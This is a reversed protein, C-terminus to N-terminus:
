KELWKIALDKDTFIEVQYSSNKLVTVLFNHSADNKDVLLAGRLNAPIDASKAYRNALHHASFPKLSLPAKSADQFVLNTNHGKIAQGLEVFIAAANKENITGSVECILYDGSDSLFIKHEAM